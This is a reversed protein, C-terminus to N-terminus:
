GSGTQNYLICLASNNYKYIIGISMEINCM